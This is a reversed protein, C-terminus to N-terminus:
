RMLGAVERPDFFPFSVERDGLAAIGSRGSGLAALEAEMSAIVPRLAARLRANVDKVAVNLAKKDAAPDAYRALLDRKKAALAEALRREGEDEFAAQPLLRDPNHEAERLRRRLWAAREEEDAGAPMALRMTLSVVAYPPPAVGLWRQIVADTVAEYRSGGVGHIFLDAVFLRQFMTLVAAKPVVRLGEATLRVAITAPDSGVVTPGAGEILLRGSTPEYWSKARRSGAILWFPTEVAGGQVSLEPFPHAASRTKTRARFRLVEENFIEAFRLADAIVHAAFVVFTASACQETLFLELYQTGAPAEFARRAVVMTEALNETRSAAEGLAEVFRRIRSQVDPSGLERVCAEAEVAFQALREASPPPACAYCEERDGSHLVVDRGRDADQRCPTRLSLRGVRDSDVVLDIAVSGSVRAYHDAAFHKAWVGPHFLQPQHGTMVIAGTLHPPECRPIGLRKCAAAAAALAEARARRRLESLPLGAIPVSWGAAASKAAEVLSDWEGFPPVVLAEGHRHPVRLQRPMRM